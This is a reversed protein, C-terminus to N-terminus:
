SFLLPNHIKAILGNLWQKLEQLQGPDSKYMQLRSMNVTLWEVMLGGIWNKHFSGSQAFKPMLGNLWQKLEQLQGPDSKHMQLPPM